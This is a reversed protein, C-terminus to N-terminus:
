FLLAKPLLGFKKKKNLKCVKYIMWGILAFFAMIVLSYLLTNHGKSIYQTIPCCQEFIDVKTKILDFTLLLKNSIEVAKVSSSLSKILENNNIREISRFLMKEINEIQSEFETVNAWSIGKSRIADIDDIFDSYHKYAVEINSFAKNRIMSDTFIPSFTESGGYPFFAHHGGFTTDRVPLDAVGVAIATMILPITSNDDSNIVAIKDHIMIKNKNDKFIYIPFAIQSGNLADILSNGLIHKSRKISEFVVDRKETLLSSAIYPFDYLYQHNIVISIDFASHFFSDIHQRLKTEFVYPGFSIVPIFYSKPTPEFPINIDPLFIDNVFQETQHFLAALTENQRLNFHCLGSRTDFVLCNSQSKSSGYQFQINESSNLFYLASKQAGNRASYSSHHNDILSMLKSSEKDIYVIGQENITASNYQDTFENSLVNTPFSLKVEVSKFKKNPFFHGLIHELDNAVKQNDVFGGININLQLSAKPLTKKIFEKQIALLCFFIM